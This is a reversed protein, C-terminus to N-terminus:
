DRKLCGGRGLFLAEEDEFEEVEIALGPREQDPQTKGQSHFLPKKTQQYKEIGM